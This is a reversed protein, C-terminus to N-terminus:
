NLYPAAAEPPALKVAAGPRLKQHGEVVVWEDPALGNLIEAKGALRLGIKVPKMVSNTQDDIAFVLFSDGNSMLAPEPIVLGDSKHRLTLELRAFMGGRLKLGPNPIRAKVLATRTNPDLQPSVFYVEGRFTEDPFAAAKFELPRGEQVQGLYREPVTVEVKVTDLDVLWTLTTNRSVVQGPGIMRAGTIGTFPAYIRADKLQRRMFEANAESAAFSSATQDYEQQSILKDEFLQKAREFNALALKYNADAQALSAALRTEDLKLLLTGKEIRQGENFYIQEVIGETESKIEVIENATINGILSLSESIPQRKAQVAVVPIAFAGPASGENPSPNKFCAAGLLVLAIGFSSAIRRM